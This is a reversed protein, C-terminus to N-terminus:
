APWPDDVRNVSVPPITEARFLMTSVTVSRALSRLAMLDIGSRAVVALSVYRLKSCTKLRPSMAVGTAMSM